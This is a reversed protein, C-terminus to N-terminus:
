VCRSTYLLCCKSRLALMDESLSGYFYKLNKNAFKGYDFHIGSSNLIHKTNAIITPYSAYATQLENHSYLVENAQAQETVPLKSLVNNTDIARLLRHANFMKKSTFTLPQLAVFKETLKKAKSFHFSDFEKISVGIYENDRLTQGKYNKLPYIVFANNFEPAKEDFPIAGHLHLSLHDNLEKFGQNNTAIGVYQQQAGNRFDIGLIPKVHYEHVAKRVFELCASTNNIDTLVVSSYGGKKAHDLLEDISLTGYCFSYYTHNNLLVIRGRKRKWLM